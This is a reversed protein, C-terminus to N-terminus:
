SAKESQSAFSSNLGKEIGNFSTSFKIFFACVVVTKMLIQLYYTHHTAIEWAQRCATALTLAVGIAIAIMLATAILYSVAVKM